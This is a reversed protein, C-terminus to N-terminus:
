SGRGRCVPASRGRRAFGVERCTCTSFACTRGSACPQTSPPSRDLAEAVVRMLPQDQLALRVDERTPAHDDAILIRWVDGTM